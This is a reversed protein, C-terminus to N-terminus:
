HKLPMIKLLMYINSEPVDYALEQVNYRVQRELEYVKTDSNYKPEIEIKIKTIVTEQIRWNYPDLVWVKETDKPNHLYEPVNFLTNM